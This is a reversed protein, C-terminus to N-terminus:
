PSARTGFQCGSLSLTVLCLANSLPLGRREFCVRILHQNSFGTAGFTCVPKSTSLLLGFIQVYIYINQFPVFGKIM